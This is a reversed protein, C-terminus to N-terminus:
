SGTNNSELHKIRINHSAVEKDLRAINHNLGDIKDHHSNLRREHIKDNELLREIESTLKIINENLKNIPAYCKYLLGGFGGLTVVAIVLTGLFENSNM